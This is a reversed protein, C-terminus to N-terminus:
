NKFSFTIQEDESGHEMKLTYTGSNEWGPGGAIALTSYEGSDKIKIDEAWILEGGANEISLSITNGLSTKSKGSISIIDGGDYSSQDLDLLGFSMTTSGGPGVDIGNTGLVVAAIIAVAIAAGGILVKINTKDRPKHTIITSTQLQPAVTAVQEQPQSIETPQELTIEIEPEPPKRLDDILKRVYNREYNSIAENNEAARKIQELVKKDGIEKNLLEKVNDLIEDPM